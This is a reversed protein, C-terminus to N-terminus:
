ASVKRSLKLEGNRTKKMIGSIWGMPNSPFHRTWAVRFNLGTDPVDTRVFDNDCHSWLFDISNSQLQLRNLGLHRRNLWGDDPQYRTVRIAVLEPWRLPPAEWVLTSWSTPSRGVVKPGLYEVNSSQLCIQQTVERSTWTNQGRHSKGLFIMTKAKFRGRNIPRSSSEIRFKSCISAHM